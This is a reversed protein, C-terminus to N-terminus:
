SRVARPAPSLPFLPEPVQQLALIVPDNTKRLSDLRGFEVDTPTILGWGAEPAADGSDPVFCTGLFHADAVFDEHGHTAIFHDLKARWQTKFDSPTHRLLAVLDTILEFLDGTQPVIDTM